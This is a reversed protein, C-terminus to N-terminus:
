TAAKFTQISGLVKRFMLIWQFLRLHRLFGEELTEKFKLM